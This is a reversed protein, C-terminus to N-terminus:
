LKIQALNRVRRMFFMSIMTLRGFMTVRLGLMRSQCNGSSSFCVRSSRHLCVTRRLRARIAYNRRSEPYVFFGYIICEISVALTDGREAGEGHRRHTVCVAARVRPKHQRRNERKQEKGTEEDILDDIRGPM